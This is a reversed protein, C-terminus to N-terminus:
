RSPRWRLRSSAARRWTRTSATSAAALWSPVSAGARAAFSAAQKFNQVPLIGPVIPITVGRARARDLYRFYVDNDFFFQTAARTAGADVKRELIEIDADVSLSEPHKEPYASVTIEFDGVRRIGAILDPTSAYGGPHPAYTGGIGGAPDGRLAVIHRM